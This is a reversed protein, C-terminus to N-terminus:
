PCRDSSLGRLLYGCKPCEVPFEDDSFRTADVRAGAPIVVTGFIPTGLFAGLGSRPKGRPDLGAPKEPAPDLPRTM